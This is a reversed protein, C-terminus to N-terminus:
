SKKSIKNEHQKEDVELDKRRSTQKNKAVRKLRRKDIDIVM